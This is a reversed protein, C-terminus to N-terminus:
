YWDEGNIENLKKRTPMYGCRYDYSNNWDIGNGDFMEGEYGFEAFYDERSDINLSYSCLNSMQKKTPKKFSIIYTSEYGLSHNMEPTLTYKVGANLGKYISDLNVQAAYSDRNNWKQYPVVAAECISILEKRTPNRM